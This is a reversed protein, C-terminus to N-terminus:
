VSIQQNNTILHLAIKNHSIQISKNRVTTKIVLPYLAYLEPSISKM